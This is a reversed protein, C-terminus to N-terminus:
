SCTALCTANQCPFNCYNVARAALLVKFYDNQENGTIIISSDFKYKEIKKVGLGLEKAEYTPVGKSNVFVRTHLGYDEGRFITAGDSVAFIDKKLGEKIISQAGETVESEWIMRDFKTGLINYIEEFHEISIEKGCKYWHLIEKEEKNKFFKNSNLLNFIKKNYEDIENKFDANSDYYSAGTYYAAGLFYINQDLTDGDKPM